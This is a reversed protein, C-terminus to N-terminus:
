ADRRVLQSRVIGGFLAILLMLAILTAAIAGGLPKNRGGAQEALLTGLLLVKGGGLVTPILFEGLALIAALISGTVIGPLALPLVVTWLVAFPRAGMDAAADTVSAGIRQM